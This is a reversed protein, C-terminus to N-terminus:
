RALKELAARVLRGTPDSGHRVQERGVSRSADALLDVVAAVQLAPAWRALLDMLDGFMQAYVGDLGIPTEVQIYYDPVGDQVAHYVNVSFPMAARDDAPFGGWEEYGAVRMVAEGKADPASTWDTKKAWAKEVPANELIKWQGNDYVQAAHKM